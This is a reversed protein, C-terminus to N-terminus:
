KRIQAASHESLICSIHSIEKQSVPEVELQCWSEWGKGEGLTLSKQTLELKLITLLKATLLLPARDAQFLEM